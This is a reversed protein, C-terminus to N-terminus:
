DSIISMCSFLFDILLLICIALTNQGILEILFPCLLPVRIMCIIFPLRRFLTRNGLCLWVYSMEIVHRYQMGHFTNRELVSQIQSVPYIHVVHLAHAIILKTIFKFRGGFKFALLLEHDKSGVSVNM